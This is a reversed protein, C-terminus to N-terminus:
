DLYGRASLARMVERSADEGAAKMKARTKASTSSQGAPAGIISSNPLDNDGVHRDGADNVANLFRALAEISTCNTAGVKCVELRVRKGTQSKRGDKGWRWLTSPHLSNGKATRLSPFRRAVKALPLLQERKWWPTDPVNSDNALTEASM